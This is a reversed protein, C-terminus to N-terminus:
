SSYQLLLFFFFWVWLWCAAQLLFICYNAKRVWKSNLLNHFLITNGMTADLLASPLQLSFCPEASASTAVTKLKALTVRQYLCYRVWATPEAYLTYVRLFCKAIKLHFRLNKSTQLWSHQVKDLSVSFCLCFLSLFPSFLSKPKARM